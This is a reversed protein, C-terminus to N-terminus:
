LGQVKQKITDELEKNAWQEVPEIHGGAPSPDVRGGGRKAHGYELLHALQYTGHKGYITATANLRGKKIETTWGKAYKGRTKRNSRPSEKRIKKAAEKAVKEVAEITIEFVDGEYDNLLKKVDETFDLKVSM